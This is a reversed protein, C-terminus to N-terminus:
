VLTCFQDILSENKKRENDDRRSFIISLYYIQFNNAHFILPYVPIGLVFNKSTLRYTSLGIWTKNEM